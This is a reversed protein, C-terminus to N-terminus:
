NWVGDLAEGSQRVPHPLPPVRHKSCNKYAPQVANRGIKKGSRTDPARAAAFFWAMAFMNLPHGNPMRNSNLESSPTILASNKRSSNM